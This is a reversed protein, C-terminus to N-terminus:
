KVTFNNALDRHGYLRLIHQFEHVYQPLVCIAIMFIDGNQISSILIENDVIDIEHGDCNISYAIGIKNNDTRVFGNDVLFSENLEIGEFEGEYLYKKFLKSSNNFCFLSCYLVDNVRWIGEQSRVLDGIMLDYTELQKKKTEM